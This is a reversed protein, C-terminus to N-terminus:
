EGFVTLWYTGITGGSKPASEILLRYTGDAPLIVQIEASRDGAYRDDNYALEGGSPEYLRIQPDLTDEPEVTIRWVEGARGEFRYGRQVTASAIDDRIMAPVTHAVFPVDQPWAGVVTPVPSPSVVVATSAANGASNNYREAVLWVLALIVFPILFAAAFVVWHRRWWWRQWLTPVVAYPQWRQADFEDSAYDAEVYGNSDHIDDLSHDDDYIIHADGDVDNGM